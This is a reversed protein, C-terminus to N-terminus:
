RMSNAFDEAMKIDKMNPRGKNMGGFYRLFSNKNLGRCYFENIIVASKGLLRNRMEQHSKEYVVGATSFLFMKKDILGPIKEVIGYLSKHFDGDYIGSGIGILEYSDIIAPNFDKGDIVDANLVNGMAYAIKKTSGLHVSKYIILTKM